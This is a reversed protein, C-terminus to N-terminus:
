MTTPPIRGKIRRWVFWIIVIFVVIFILWPSTRVAWSWTSRNNEDINESEETSEKKALDVKEQTEINQSFTDQKVENRESVDVKLNKVGRGTWVTKNGVIERTVEVTDADEEAEVIVSENADTILQTSKGQLLDKSKKEESSIESVETVKERDIERSERQSIKKKAGCSSCMIVAAILAFYLLIRFLKKM